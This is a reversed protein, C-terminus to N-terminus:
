YEINWKVINVGSDHINLNIITKILDGFINKYNIGIAINKSSNKESSYTFLFIHSARPELVYIRHITESFNASIVINKALGHGVNIIRLEFVGIENRFFQDPKILPNNLVKAAKESEKASKYSFFASGLAILTAVGQIFIGLIGLLRDM